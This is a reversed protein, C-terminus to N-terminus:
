TATCIEDSNRVAEYLQLLLRASAINAQAVFRESRQFFVDIDGSEHSAAHALGEDFISPLAFEIGFGVHILLHYLGELPQPFMYKAVPTPDCCYQNSFAEWGKAKIDREFLVLCNTYIPLPKMPARFTAPDRRKAEVLRNALLM